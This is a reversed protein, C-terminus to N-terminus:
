LTRINFGAAIKSYSFMAYRIADMLHDNFKVPEELIEGDKNQKYSYSLVEKNIGTNEKLSYVKKSKVFDIGLKIDKLAPHANFGHNCIEAIRGPEASDCFIYSNKNEILVDLESILDSNTMKNKYILEFLYYSDDKIKIKVLATKNNYGFDLGYITETEETFVPMVDPINFPKYILNKLEGWEGLAYINYFDEDQSKLNELVSEYEKDIYQNNRFTTKVKVSNKLNMTNLWHHVNVPNFTFMIQKYNPSKGRLRLDLQLFDRYDLETAEEIWIGSIGFISKLKEVDDLGASIISNGNVSCHISIDSDRCEFYNGLGSSSILSKLLSYQSYRISKATKRALLFKHKKEALMRILIKQAAFVSKGSGAGGYIILYRGNYDLYPLYINNFSNLDFLITTSEAKM